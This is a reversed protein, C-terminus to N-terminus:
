EVIETIDSFTVRRSANLADAGSGNFLNEANNTSCVDSYQVGGERSRSSEDDVPIPSADRNTNTTEAQPQDETAQEGGSSEICEPETSEDLQSSEDQQSNDNTDPSPQPCIEKTPEVHATIAEPVPQPNTFSDVSDNMGARSDDPLIQENTDDDVDPLISVEPEAEDPLISIEGENANDRAVNSMHEASDLHESFQSGKLYEKKCLECNFARNNKRNNEHAAMHRGLSKVSNFTQTCLVCTAKAVTPPATEFNQKRKKPPVSSDARKAKHKKAAAAAAAKSQRKEAKVVKAKVQPKVAKVKAKVLVKEKAKVIKAKVVQVKVKVVKPKVEPKPTLKPRGRPSQPFSKMAAKTQTVKPTAAAKKYKNILASSIPTLCVVLERSFTPHTKAGKHGRRSPTYLQSLSVEGFSRKGVRGGRRVPSPPSVFTNLDLKQVQVVPNSRSPTAPQPQPQVQLQSKKQPSLIAHLNHLIEDNKWCLLRFEYCQDLQKKCQGCISNPIGNSLNEKIDLNTCQFIKQALRKDGPFPFIPEMNTNSLLCLRCLKNLPYCDNTAPHIKPTAAAINSISTAPQQVKGKAPFNTKAKGGRKRGRKPM